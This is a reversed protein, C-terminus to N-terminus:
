KTAKVIYHSTSKTSIGHNKYLFFSIKVWITGQNKDLPDVHLLTIIFDFVSESRVTINKLM